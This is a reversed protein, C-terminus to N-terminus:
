RFCITYNFIDIEIYILTISLAFRSLEFLYTSLCHQQLGNDLAFQTTLFQM